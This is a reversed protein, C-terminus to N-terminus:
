TKFISWLTEQTKNFSHYAKGIYILDASYAEELEMAPMKYKINAKYIFEQIMSKCSQKNADSVIKYVEVDKDAIQLDLNKINETWCM